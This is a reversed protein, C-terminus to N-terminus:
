RTSNRGSRCAATSTLSTTGGSAAARRRARHWPVFRDGRPHRRHGQRQARFRAPGQPAGRRQPIPPDDLFTGTTSALFVADYQRLNEETIDAPNYSIVTTWAGTKQGSAEITRTALPISAHVFGAAKALVLIKRPQKPTAPATDPLASMMQMLDTVKAVQPQAARAPQATAQAARVVPPRVSAAVFFFSLAMVVAALSRGIRSM